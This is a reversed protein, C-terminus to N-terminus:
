AYHLKKKIDSPLYNFKRKFASTFHQPNKYGIAYAVDAVNIGEDILMNRAKEMRMDNLYSIIPKGTVLKFNRKLKYDNTGAMNALKKITLSKDLYDRLIKKALLVQRREQETLKNEDQPLNKKNLNAFLYSFIEKIKSELFIEKIEKQYSCNLIDNIMFMLASPIPKSEEFLKYPTKDKLAKGFTSSIKDFSSRFTNKLFEESIMIELSKRNPEFYSLTGNVKPMYFLNYEGKNISVEMSNADHPIYNSDGGLEFHLKIFPYKYDIDMHLPPTIADSRLVVVANNLLIEKYRITAINNKVEMRKETFGNSKIEFCDEQTFSEGTNTRIFYTSKKQENM